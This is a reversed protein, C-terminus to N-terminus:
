RRRPRPPAMRMLGPHLLRRRHAHRALRPRVPGDVVTQQVPSVQADVLHTNRRRRRDGPDLAEDGDLELTAHTRCTVLNTLLLAPHNVSRAESTSLNIYITIKM